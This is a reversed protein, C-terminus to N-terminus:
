MLMLEIHDHGKIIEVIEDFLTQGKQQKALGQKEKVYPINDPHCKKLMNELYEVTADFGLDQKSKTSNLWNLKIPQGYEHVGFGGRLLDNFADLNHGTKWDLNKTLVHDAEAYFGELDSFKNGDLIIDMNFKKAHPITVYLGFHSQRQTSPSATFLGAPSPVDKM